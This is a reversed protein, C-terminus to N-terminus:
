DEYGYRAVYPALVPLVPAMQKAYSRWQGIGGRYLGRAVQPASPTRILRKRATEEFDCMADEYPVGMFQCIARVRPEFEEVLDEYRSAFCDLTLNGRCFEAFDMTASYFDAASELTFMEIMFSSLHFRRRFCSLVCDRPDRLALLMKAHPFLKAILAWNLINFPQKDVFVPRDLRAGASRAAMWYADRWAALDDGVMAALRAMGDPPLVFEAMAGALCDREELAEIRDHSALVQELLTTGSRPFGVLFVHTEVPARYAGADCNRWAELGKQELWAAIRRARAPVRELRLSGYVADHLDKFTRNARQYHDFAEAHRGLGDLADASLSEASSRNHQSRDALLPSMLRLVADFNRDGLELQALALLVAPENPKLKLARQVLDRARRTEGQTAAVWALHAAAGGHDPDMEIAREYERQAQEWQGVEELSLGKHYHADANGPAACLCDDYARIAKEHQGLGAHAMGLIQLAEHGRPKLKLARQAFSLAAAPANEEMEYLASFVFVHYHVIGRAAADRAAKIAQPADGARIHAEIQRLIQAQQLPTM